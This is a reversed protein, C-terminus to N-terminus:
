RQVVSRRDVGSGPRRSAAVDPWGDRESSPEGVLRQPKMGLLARVPPIRRLVIEYLGVTIVLSGLVVILLKVLIDVGAGLQAAIDWQVTYFAIVVIVPQHFLYFPLIAEQGYALWRNRFNLLRMGVHLATVTWCWGNLVVAAWAVYFGPLTPNTAWEAAVGALAAGVMLLTTGLGIGLTLGADRRIARVFREDGYLIYGYVFYVLMYAFDAWDTYLSFGPQLSLRVIVLPLVFVLLGGRREGLDGLWGTFRQGADSRLWMFLPLAILSFSFLYGLFWLHSGFAEFIRPSVVGQFEQARGQLFAPIFGLFSGSYWGKHIWEIYFQVPSLLIAGVILPILLRKIRESVYQRGSRRRLAFGTGAGAMLFFLPMGWSGLFVLCVFTLALSQYRNGILWDHHVFPRIAHYLFVGVIALVRLWDIYHL